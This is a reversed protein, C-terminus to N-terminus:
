DERPPREAPSEDQSTEDLWTEIGETPLRVRDRIAPRRRRSFLFVSALRVALLIAVIAGGLLFWTASTENRAARPSPAYRWIMRGVLLPAALPPANPKAGAEHYGQLKLFYGYFTAREEIDAGTPMEPPLHATVGVYLWAQSETTFGWVEYLRKIGLDNEGADYGLVRRVNLDLRVLEGRYDDPSQIFDNFVLDSKARRQLADLNQHEVWKLLRWYAPMEEPSLGLTRDTIAQFEENAADREEPELDTPGRPAASAQSRVAAIRDGPRTEPPLRGHVAVGEEPAGEQDKVLWQWTRPDRTQVILMALVGLMVIATMLRPLEAGRFM